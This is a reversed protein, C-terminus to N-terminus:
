APPQVTAEDLASLSEANLVRQVCGAFGPVPSLTVFTKLNPLERALDQVVQKILFNGFSVGALGKQTNSISYFVATTAERAEIAQRSKDLLPGVASPIERTLAVEVFILPEDILQPHFFAYCRRDPPELRNRLDDWDQIAHVAEYKIIKEVINASTSWDM